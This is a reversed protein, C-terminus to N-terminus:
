KNLLALQINGNTFSVVDVTGNLRLIVARLQDGTSFSGAARNINLDALVPLMEGRTRYFSLYIPADDLNYLRNFHSGGAWMNTWPWVPSSIRFDNIGNPTSWPRDPQKGLLEIYPPLGADAPSSRKEVPIVGFESRYIQLAAGIRRLKAISAQLDYDDARIFAVAGAACVSAICIAVLARWLYDLFRGKM